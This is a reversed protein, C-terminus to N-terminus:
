QQRTFLMLKRVGYNFIFTAGGAVAKAAPLSLTAVDVALFIVLNNIGLGALGVIAYIGFEKMPWLGFRRHRFAWRISLLYSTVAGAVFGLTAAWLYHMFNAAALLTMMDVALAILSASFYGVFEHVPRTRIRVAIRAIITNM